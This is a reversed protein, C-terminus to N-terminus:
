QSIDKPSIQLPSYSFPPFNSPFSSSLPSIFPANCNFPHFVQLIPLFLPLFNALPLYKRIAHPLFIFNETPPPYVTSPGISLSYFGRIIQSHVPVNKVGHRRRLYPRRVWRMIIAIDLLLWVTSTALVIGLTRAKIRCMAAPPCCTKEGRRGVLSGSVISKYAVRPVSKHRGYQAGLM